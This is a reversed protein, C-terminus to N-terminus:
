GKKSQEVVDSRGTMRVFDPDVKGEVLVREAPCGAPEVFLQPM